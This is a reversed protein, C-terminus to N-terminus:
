SPALLARAITNKQVQSTGEYITTTRADRLYREAPFDKMYGAGGLLQVADNTVRVAAETATLKAMSSLAVIEQVPVGADLRSACEYVLARAAELDTAMEALMWRLGQLDTLPRGKQQRNSLFQIACDLAASGGGLAIAAIMIRNQQIGQLGARIGVGEPGLMNEAPVKLNQFVLDVNPFGRQGMKENRRAEIFGPSETEVIFASIGQSAPGDSTRAFVTAFRAMKGWSIYSKHGNIVWSSGDRVARTVMRSPDSGAEAETLAVLAIAGRALEPMFQNRQQETGHQRLALALTNNQGALTAIAMSGARAVEERAVCISRIDAGPGGYEEPVALQLLGNERFLEVIHLPFQDTRDMEDAIPTVHKIALQRVSKAFAQHEEDLM